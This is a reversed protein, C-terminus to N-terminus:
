TGSGEYWISSSDSKEARIQAKTYVVVNDPHMIVAIIAAPNPSWQLWTNITQQALVSNNLENYGDILVRTPEVIDTGDNSFLCSGYEPLNDKTAQPILSTKISIFSHAM